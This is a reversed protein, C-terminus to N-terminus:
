IPVLYSVSNLVKLYETSNYEEQWGHRLQFDEDDSKSGGNEVNYSAWHDSKARVLAQKPRTPRASPEPLGGSPQGDNLDSASRLHKHGNPMSESPGGNIKSEPAEHTGNQKLPSTTPPFSSDPRPDFAVRATKGQGSNPREFEQTM